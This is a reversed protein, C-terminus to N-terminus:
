ATYILESTDGAIASEEFVVVDYPLSFMTAEFVADADERSKASILAHKEYETSWRYIYLFQTTNKVFVFVTDGNDLCGEELRFKGDQLWDYKNCLQTAIDLAPFSNDLTERSRTITPVGEAKARYKGTLSSFSVQLAKM